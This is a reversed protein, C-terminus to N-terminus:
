IAPILNWDYLKIIDNIESYVESFMEAACWFAGDVEITYHGEQRIATIKHATGDFWDYVKVTSITRKAM